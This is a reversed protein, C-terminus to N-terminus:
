GAAIEVPQMAWSERTTATDVNGHDATEELIENYEIWIESTAHNKMEKSHKWKQQGIDEKLSRNKYFIVYM